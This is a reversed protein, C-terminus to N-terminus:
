WYILKIETTLQPQNLVLATEAYKPAGLRKPPNNSFGYGEKPIGMFGSDLKGNLNEDHFLWVAYVGQPLGAFVVQATLTKPDIAVERVEVVNADRSLKVRLNGKPNRIGTIRVTLTSTAQAPFQPTQTQALMRMSFITSLVCCLLPLTVIRDLARRAKMTRPTWGTEM